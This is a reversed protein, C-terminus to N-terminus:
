VNLACRGCCFGLSDKKSECGGQDKPCELRHWYKLLGCEYLVQKVGKPKKHLNPNSCNPQFIMSQPLGHSHIFGKQLISQQRSPNWNMKSVLLADDAYVKHNSANDFAFVAICNPFVYNFIPIAIKIAHTVMDEGTWYKNKGYEFYETVYWRSISAAQFQENSIYLPIQLWGSATVFDSVM